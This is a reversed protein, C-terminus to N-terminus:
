RKPKFVIPYVVALKRNPLAPFVLAAFVKRVCGAVESMAADSGVDEVAIVAGAADVTFRTKVMGNLTPDKAVAALYCAQMDEYRARVIAQIVGRDDHPTATTPPAPTGADTTDPAGGKIPASMEIARDDRSAIAVPVTASSAPASAIASSMGVPAPASATPTSSCALLALSLIAVSRM